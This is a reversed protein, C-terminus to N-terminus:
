QAKDQQFRNTVPNKAIFAMSLVMTNNSFCKTPAQFHWATLVEPSNIELLNPITDKWNSQNGQELQPCEAFCLWHTQRLEKLHDQHSSVQMQLKLDQEIAAPAISFYAARWAPKALRLVAQPLPLSLVTCICRPQRLQQTLGQLGGPFAPIVASDKDSNGITLIVPKKRLLYRYKIFSPIIKGTKGTVTFLLELLTPIGVRHMFISTLKHSVWSVVCGDSAPSLVENIWQFYFM